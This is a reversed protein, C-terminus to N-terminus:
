KDVPNKRTLKITPSFQMSKEERYVVTDKNETIGHVQKIINEIAEESFIEKYEVQKLVRKLYEEYKLTLIKLKETEDAIEKLNKRKQYLDKYEKCDDIISYLSVFTPILYFIGFINMNISFNIFIGLSLFLICIALFSNFLTFFINNWPFTRKENDLINERNILKKKLYDLTEEKIFIDKFSYDNSNKTILSKRGLEDISITHNEDIEIYGTRM